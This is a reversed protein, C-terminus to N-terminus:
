NEKESNDDKRKRCFLQARVGTPLEKGTFIRVINKGHAILVIAFMASLFVCATVGVGPLLVVWHWVIMFVAFAVSMVSMRDTIVILALIPLVCCLMLLPQVAACVGIGTAVGKGGKFDSYPPLVHGLVAFLGALYMFTVESGTHAFAFKCVLCVTVGKLADCLFTLAGMGLGFVRFVNTTGANGSGLSRIDKHKITKCFLIAFNIGGLAYSWLAVIAAQWWYTSFFNLIAM